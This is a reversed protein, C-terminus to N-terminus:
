GLHLNEVVYPVVVEPAVGPDHLRVHGYQAALDVRGLGPEDVRQAPDPVHQAQGGRLQNAMVVVDLSCRQCPSRRRTDPRAGSRTLIIVASSARTIMASAMMLM